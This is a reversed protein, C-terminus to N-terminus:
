DTLERLLRSARAALAAADGAVDVSKVRSKGGAGLTVDRKPVGLWEAILRELAENALGKEPAARVRVKLAAGTAVAELGLVEDRSSKPTLRVRLRLGGGQVQWPPDGATM